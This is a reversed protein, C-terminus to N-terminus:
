LACSGKALSAEAILLSRLKDPAIVVAKVKDKAHADVLSPRGSLQALEGMFSGPQHTVILADHRNRDRRTIDVHGSLLIILGPGVTGVEM